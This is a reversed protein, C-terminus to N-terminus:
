NRWNRNLTDDSYYVDINTRGNNDKMIATVQVKDEKATVVFTATVKANAPITAPGGDHALLADTIATSGITKVSEGDVSGLSVGRYTAGNVVIDVEIDASDSSENAVEVWSAYNVTSSINLVFSAVKSTSGNIGVNYLDAGDISVDSLGVNAGAGFEIKASASVVHPSLKIDSSTGLVDYILEPTTPTLATPGMASWTRLNADDADVILSVGNFTPDDEGLWNATDAFTYVVTDSADLTITDDLAGANNSIIYTADQLEADTVLAIAEEGDNAPVSSIQEVYTEREEAVDIKATLEVLSSPDLGFQPTFELITTKAVSAGPLQDGFVDTASVVVEASNTWTGSPASLEFNGLDTGSTTGAEVLAIVEGNPIGTAAANAIRLKVTEVGNVADVASIRVGVVDGIAVLGGMTTTAVLNYDTGKLLASGEFDFTIKDGDNLDIDTKYFIVAGNDGALGDDQFLYDGSLAQLKETSVEWSPYTGAGGVEVYPGTSPASAIAAGGFMAAVITTALISKNGLKM